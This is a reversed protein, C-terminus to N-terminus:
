RSNVEKEASHPCDPASRCEAPADAPFLAGCRRCRGGKIPGQRQLWYLYTSVHVGVHKAIRHDYWGAERAARAAAVMEPLWV